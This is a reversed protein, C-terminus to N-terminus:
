RMDVCVVQLFGTRMSENLRRRWRVARLRDEIQLRCVLLQLRLQPIKVDRRGLLKFEKTVRPLGDDNMYAAAAGVMHVQEAIHLAVRAM